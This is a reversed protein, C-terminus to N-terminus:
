RVEDWLRRPVHSKLRTVIRAVMEDDIGHAALALIDSTVDGGLELLRRAADITHRCPIVADKEGHLLHITTKSPAAEPL